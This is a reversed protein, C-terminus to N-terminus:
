NSAFAGRLVRSPASLYEMTADPGFTKGTERQRSELGAERGPQRRWPPQAPGRRERLSREGPVGHGRRNGGDEAGAARRCRGCGMREVSSRARGAPLGLGSGPKNQSWPGGGGGGRPRRPSEGAHAGGAHTATKEQERGARHRPGVVGVHGRRLARLRPSSRPVEAERWPCPPCKSAVLEQAPAM